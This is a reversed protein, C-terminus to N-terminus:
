LLNETQTENDRIDANSRAASLSDDLADETQAENDRTQVNPTVTSPSDGLAAEETQIQCDQSPKQRVEAILETNIQVLEHIELVAEDLNTLTEALEEETNFLAAATTQRELELSEISESIQQEHLENLIHIKSEFFWILLTRRAFNRTLRKELSVVNQRNRIKLKWLQFLSRRILDSKYFCFLDLLKGECSLFLSLIRNRECTSSELDAMMESCTLKIALVAENQAEHMNVFKDAAQQVQLQQNIVHSVLTEHKWFSIAKQILIHNKHQLFSQLTRQCKICRRWLNFCKNRCRWHCSQVRNQVRKQIRIIRLWSKLMLRLTKRSNAFFRSNGIKEKCSRDSAQLKDLQFQQIRHIETLELLEAELNMQLKMHVHDKVAHKWLRFFRCFPASSIRICFNRLIVERFNEIGIRSLVGTRDQSTNEIRYENDSAATQVAVSEHSVSSSLTPSALSSTSRTAQQTVARADDLDKRLQLNAQTIKINAEMAAALRTELDVLHTDSTSSLGSWNASPTENDALITQHQTHLSSESLFAERDRFAETVQRLELQLLNIEKTAAAMSEAKQAEIEIEVEELFAEQQQKMSKLELSITSNEFQLATVQQLLLRENHSLAAAAGYGSRRM